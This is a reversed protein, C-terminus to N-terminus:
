RTWLYTYIERYKETQDSKM